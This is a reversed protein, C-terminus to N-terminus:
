KKPEGGGERESPPHATAPDPSPVPRGLRRVLRERLAPWEDPLISYMATDRVGGDWAPLHARLVGEPKAGLREMATRSRANRADTKLTVRRVRWVGFAWDLMLLKAESNIATRQASQALWTWGIEVADPGEPLPPAPARPWQWWELNAFRTSGVIRGDTRRVTAFPLALGRSADSVAAEVYRQMGEESDPVSSVAYTERSECAAEWFAAAHDARLPELRVFTGELVVPGVPRM